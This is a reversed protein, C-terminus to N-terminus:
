NLATSNESISHGEGMESVKQVYQPNVAVERDMEKLKQDLQMCKQLQLIDFSYCSM